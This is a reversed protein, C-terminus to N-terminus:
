SSSGCPFALGFAMELNGYQVPDLQFDAKIRPALSSLTQRDLYNIMTALLLLGAVVWKWSPPRPNTM